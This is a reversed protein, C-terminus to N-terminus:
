EKQAKRGEKRRYEKVMEKCESCSSSFILRSHVINNGGCLQTNYLM